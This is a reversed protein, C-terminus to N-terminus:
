DKNKVFIGRFQKEPLNFFHVFLDFCLDTLFFFGVFLCALLLAENFDHAENFDDGSALLPTIAEGRRYRKPL